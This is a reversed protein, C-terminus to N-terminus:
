LPFARSLYGLIPKLYQKDGVPDVARLLHHLHDLVIDCLHYGLVHLYVGLAHLYLNGLCAALTM